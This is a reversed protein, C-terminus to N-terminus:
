TAVAYRATVIHQMAVLEVPLVVQEFGSISPVNLRLRLRRMAQCGMEFSNLTMAAACFPQPGDFGLNDMSALIITEGVTIGLDLFDTVAYDLTFRNGTAVATPPNELALWHSLVARRQEVSLPSYPRLAALDPDIAIDHEQLALTYGTHRHQVSTSAAESWLTAIRRHGQDLLYKTLQYGSTFDNSLVADSPLAPYFRDVMVFPIGAQRVREFHAVNTYSDVPYVILGDVGADLAQQINSAETELSQASDLLLLHDQEERCIHGVGRLIGMIHTNNMSSVICAILRGQNTTRRPSSTPLRDSVFTGAGRRRVLIGERVLDGLAREATVTSVDFRECVKKQTIFRDGPQYDGRQIEELLALKIRHYTPVFNDAM